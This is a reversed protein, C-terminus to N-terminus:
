ESGGDGLLVPQGPHLYSCRNRDALHLSLETTEMHELVLRRRGIHHSPCFVGVRPKLTPSSKSVNHSFM